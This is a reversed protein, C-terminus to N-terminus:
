GSPSLVVMERTEWESVNVVLFFGATVTLRWVPRSLLALRGSLVCKMNGSCTERSWYVWEGTETSGSAPTAAHAGVDHTNVLVCELSDLRIQGVSESARGTGLHVGPQEFSRPDDGDVLRRHPM